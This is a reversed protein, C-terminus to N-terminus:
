VEGRLLSFCECDLLCGDYRKEAGRLCGDYRFGCKELVRRSRSNFPYCYASLLDVDTGSFTNKILADVAETMLGRGWYSEGMAYGLMRSRPNERRPDPMLGVSGIVCGEDRLVLAYIDPKGLYVERMVARTEEISDHPKWGAAAGVGPQRSYAYVQQADEARMPRLILRPTEIQM